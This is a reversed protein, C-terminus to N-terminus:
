PEGNGVEERRTHFDQVLESWGLKIAMASQNVQAHDPRATMADLGGPAINLTAGGAMYRLDIRQTTERQLTPAPLSRGSRFLTSDFSARPPKKSQM